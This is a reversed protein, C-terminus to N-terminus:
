LIGASAAGVHVLVPAATGEGAPTELMWAELGPSGECLAAVAEARMVMVATTLADAVAAPAV